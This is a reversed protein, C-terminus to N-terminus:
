KLAYQRKYSQTRCDEAKEDEKSVDAVFGHKKWNRIQTPSPFLVKAFAKKRYAVVVVVIAVVILVFVRTEKSQIQIYVISM